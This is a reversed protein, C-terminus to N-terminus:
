AGALALRFRSGSTCVFVLGLGHPCQLCKTVGLALLDFGLPYFLMNSSAGSRLWALREFGLQLLASESLLLASLLFSLFVSLQEPHDDLEVGSLGLLLCCASLLLLGFKGSHQSALDFFATRRGFFVRRDISTDEHHSKRPWCRSWWGLCIHDTFSHM